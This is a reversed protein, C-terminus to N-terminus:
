QSFCFAQAGFSWCTIPKSSTDTNGAKDTVTLQATYNGQASPYAHTASRGTGTRGDGFTWAYSAIDGDPDTSGSADFTCSAWQCFATFSASPAEGAPPQGARVSKTVEDSNGEDDTVTLTVDYSGASGYSHSPTAGEGSKGDGFDWAYSAISGGEDSSGSGDFACELSEACDAEFAATPRGPQPEGGGLDTVDLFRNPSGPGPNSVWGSVAADVLADRVEQPTADPHGSLYLAAAGSVHPAAMSTGSMGKSGDNDSNSASTIGDAPAYIDICSGHNSLSYEGKGSNTGAVTIVEPVQGPSFGCADQNDNGAAAVWTIGSAISNRIARNIGEPDAGAGGSVWSANAVAPKRANQTVWDIGEISVADPANGGCDLVKVGVVAVDKAVGYGESSSTGGTHTGHGGDFQGKCDNVNGDDDVFDYGSEARGEFSVHDLNLETDTNYVTVGTGTNPYRYTDDVAGDVHDLGWSPPDPQEGASRATAAPDAAEAADAAEAPGPRAALDAPVAPVAASRVWLSQQVFDVAPDAALRKAQTEGMEASFGRLAASYVHGVEGGYRDTLSEAQTSVTSSAAPALSTAGHLGVIYHGPIADPAGLSLVTGETAQAPGTGALLAATTAAGVLLGLARRRHEHKVNM